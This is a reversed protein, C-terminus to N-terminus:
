FLFLSSSQTSLLKGRNLGMDSGFGRRTQSRGDVFKADDATDILQSSFSRNVAPPM